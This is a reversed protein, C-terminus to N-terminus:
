DVALRRGVRALHERPADLRELMHLAAELGGLLLEGGVNREGLRLSEDSRGSRVRLPHDIILLPPQADHAGKHRLLLHVRGRVGGRALGALHYLEGHQWVRCEASIRPSRPFHQSVSTPGSGTSASPPRKEEVSPLSASVAPSFTTYHM